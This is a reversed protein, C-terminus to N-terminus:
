YKTITTDENIIDDEASFLERSEKIQDTDEVM